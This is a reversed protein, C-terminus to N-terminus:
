LRSAESAASGGAIRRVFIRVRTISSSWQRRLAVRWSAQVAGVLSALCSPHHHCVLYCCRREQAHSSSSRFHYSRTTRHQIDIEIQGRQSIHDREHKRYPASFIVNRRITADPCLFTFFYRQRTHRQIPPFIPPSNRSFGLKFHSIGSPHCPTPRVGDSFADFWGGVM